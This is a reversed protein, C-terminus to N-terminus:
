KDPKVDRERAIVMRSNMVERVRYRQLVEEFEERSNVDRWDGEKIPPIEVYVYKLRKRVNGMLRQWLNVQQWTVEERILREGVDEWLRYNGLVNVCHQAHAFPIPRDYLLYDVGFKLGPKVIIRQRRFHYYVIYHVLFRDDPRSTTSILHLFQRLSIPTDDHEITLLNLQLLFLAEEPALQLIEKDLYEESYVPKDEITVTTVMKRRKRKPQTEQTVEEEVIVEGTMKAAEDRLQKERDLREKKVREEKFEAREKRKLATLEELSLHREGSMEKTKRERWAPQSRSLTGKGWMGRRWIEVGDVDSTINVSRTEPCWIGRYPTSPSSPHFLSAYTSPTFINFQPTPPPLPLPDNYYERQKANRAARKTNQKGTRPQQKSKFLSLM